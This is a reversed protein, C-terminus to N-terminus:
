VARNIRSKSRWWLHWERSTMIVIIFLVIPLYGTRYRIASGPNMIGFPYNAFLILALTFLSTIFGYMPMGPTRVLFIIFMALVLVGSEIFSFLHLVSRSAEGMTPGFFAQFMGYPGKYFVDYTDHWYPPRTSLGHGEFHPLIAFSYADIVDRFVFLLIAGIVAAVLSLFAIQHIKLSFIVLSILYLLAPFYAPKYIWLISLSLVGFICFKAEGNRWKVLDRLVVCVLFVVIADKGAVSSWMTFSPSAFFALLIYRYVGFISTLLLVIGIFAITQFAINISIPSSLGIVSFIHAIFITLFTSDFFSNSYYLLYDGKQYTGSDGLKTITRVIVQAFVSVACRYLYLGILLVSFGISM